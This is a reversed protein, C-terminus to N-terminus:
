IALSIELKRLFIERQMSVFYKELYFVVFNCSVATQVGKQPAIKVIGSMRNGTGCYRNIVM